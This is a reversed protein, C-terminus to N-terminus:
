IAIKNPSGSDGGQFIVKFGGITEMQKYSIFKVHFM